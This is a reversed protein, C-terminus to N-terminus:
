PQRLYRELQQSGGVRLWKGGVHHARPSAFRSWRDSAFDGGRGISFREKLEYSTSGQERDLVLKARGLSGKDGVLPDPVFDDQPAMESSSYVVSHQPIAFDKRDMPELSKAGSPQIRSRKSKGSRPRDFVSRVVEALDRRSFDPAQERMFQALAGEFERATQYRDAANQAVAKMVLDDIDSGLDPRISSPPLIKADRVQQLLKVPNQEVYLSGGTLAEYLVIGASFIDSRQDIHEGWSQEPSMYVLKGKIVGARTQGQVNAVKAVGFDTIKVEGHRSLLINQPSIDRHILGLPEGRSDLRTHAYDLGAAVERAVYLAAHIPINEDYESLQKLVRFYDAGDIYEMTIFYINDIKGLDFTKVVNAHNLGVALKAEQVLMQTFRDDLALDAHIVKLALQKEFGALGKARALYLEAMGGVAILKELHYPGFRTHLPLIPKAAESAM